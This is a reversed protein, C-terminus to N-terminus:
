QFDEKLLKSYGFSLVYRTGKTVTSVSHPAQDPRFLTFFRNHIITFAHDPVGGRDANWLYINLRYHEHGPLPDRHEPIGAGVRYRLLYLDWKRKGFYKWRNFLELKEYGTGQRGPEWAFPNHKIYGKINLIMLTVSVLLVACLLHLITM